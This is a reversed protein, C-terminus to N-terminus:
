RVAAFSDVVIAQMRGIADLVEPALRHEWPALRDVLPDRLFGAAARTMLARARDPPFSGVSVALAWFHLLGYWVFCAQLFPRVPLNTGSWPSVVRPVAEFLGEDLAWPQCEEQMYLLTHIAEHVISDAVEAEDVGPLHANAIITRGVYAGNSGSSYPEADDSQLVLVKTFEAVFMGFFPDTRLLGASAGTLRRLTRERAEGALPRLPPDLRELAGVMDVTTAQPSDLDLPMLGKLEPGRVIDGSALIEADGLATWSQAVAPAKAELARETLLSGGLFRGAEGALEPRRRWRLRFTTEPALLVRVRARPGAIALEAELHEAVEPEATRLETVLDDLSEYVLRLYAEHAMPLVQRDESWRLVEPMRQIFM